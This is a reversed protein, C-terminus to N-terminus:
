SGSCLAAADANPLTSEGTPCTVLTLTKGYPGLWLLGEFTEFLLEYDNTNNLTGDRVLDLRLEGGDLFVAHGEPFIPMEFDDPWDALNQTDAQPVFADAGTSVDRMFTYNVGGISRLMSEAWAEDVELSRVEGSAQQFAVDTVIMAPLNDHAVVRIPAFRASREVYRIEHVAQSIHQKADRATGLLGTQSVDINMDSILADLLRTEAVRAHNAMALAIDAAVDEPFARAQFNGFRMRVVVAGLEETQVTRCAHTMRAKTSEGPTQDTANEWITDSAAVTSLRAARVFSVAGRDAGMRPLSDRFPRAADSFTPLTYISQPPACWGGSAVIAKQEDTWLSPNEGPAIVAKIKSDNTRYDARSSLSMEEPLDVRFRAVNFRDVVGSRAGIFSRQAEIVREALGIRDDLDAQTGDSLQWRPKTVAAVKPKAEAPKRAAALAALSARPKATASVLEKEASPTEAEETGETEVEETEETTETAEDDDGGLLEAEMAALTAEREAAEADVLAQAESRVQSEARVSKIAELVQLRADHDAPDTGEVEGAKIAKYLSELEAQLASLAEADLSALHEAAKDATLAAIHEQLDVPGGM